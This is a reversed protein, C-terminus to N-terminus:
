TTSTRSRTMTSWNRDVPLPCRRRLRLLLALREALSRRRAVIPEGALHRRIDQALEQASAYRGPPTEAMAKAVIVDLDRGLRAVRESPRPTPRRCVTRAMQTRSFGTLAYPREGTLVQYLLVGLSYIDTATTVPEGCIQEPSAYEPTMMHSVCSEEWGAAAPALPNVLAIGFDVLKPTGAHTVLVNEPKIDQHVVLNQHAHHVADCVFCVLQLRAEISLDHTRCYVDLPEGLILEMAFYPSGDSATGGGLFRAINPHVLGALLRQELRLRRIVEPGFRGADVIKVAVYRGLKEAYALHVTGMGGRGLRRLLRFEGLRRDREDM